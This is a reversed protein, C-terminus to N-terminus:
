LYLDGQLSATYDPELLGYPLHFINRRTIWREHDTGIVSASSRICRKEYMERYVYSLVLLEDDSVLGWFYLYKARFLIISAFLWENREELEEFFTTVFSVKIGKGQHWVMELFRVPNVYLWVWM